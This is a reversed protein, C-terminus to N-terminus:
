EGYSYGELEVDNLSIASQEAMIDNLTKMKDEIAKYLPRKIEDDAKSLSIDIGINHLEEPTQCAKIKNIM